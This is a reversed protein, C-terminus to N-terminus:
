KRKIYLHELDKVTPATIVKGDIEFRSGHCPCDWTKTDSNFSLQCGLHTCHPNCVHLNGESDKYVAQKRGKYRVIDGTNPKLKKYCKISPTLHNVILNKLSNGLNSIFGGLNFNIRQPSFLEQYRNEKGTILDAILLSSAMANTMGWKNFGTIIYVDKYKRSYRGIIPLGDYTVVDNANWIYETDANFYKKALSKLRDFKNPQNVRGSRHDLGGIIVQKGYSRFTLGNELNSQYTGAIDEAEKTAICYSQSKYLKLYYAGKVKGIPYNTAIIIKNAQIQFNDTYLIKKKMDIKLIRTNEFIEFTKNLKYLFKLPHFIAQDHAIIVGKPTFGLIKQNEKFECKVGMKKLIKVLNKLEESDEMTFLHDDVRQFDCDINERRIINEYEDIAQKQSEYYNQAQKLSKSALDSFITGQQATIHATTNPTVGCLIKGSEILTVSEGRKTLQYATLIGAIGGGVVVIDRKINETLRKTLTEKANFTEKWISNM